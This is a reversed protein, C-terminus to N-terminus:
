HDEEVGVGLASCFSSRVSSPLYITYLGIPACIPKVSNLGKTLSRNVEGRVSKLRESFAANKGLVLEM